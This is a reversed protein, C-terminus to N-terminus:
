LLGLELKAAETMRDTTWPPDWTISVHSKSVGEVNGVVEAVEEVLMGAVPCAPATLTMALEVVGKADIELGYILGLDYINVPIEPDYVQKLAAVISTRLLEPAVPEVPAEGSGGFAETVAETGPEGDSSFPGNMTPLYRPEGGRAPSEIKNQKLSDIPDVANISTNNQDDHM